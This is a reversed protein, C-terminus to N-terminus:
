CIFILAFEFGMNGYKGETCEGPYEGALAELSAFEDDAAKKLIELLTVVSKAGGEKVRSKLVTLFPAQRKLVGCPTLNTGCHGDDVVRHRCGEPNEEM